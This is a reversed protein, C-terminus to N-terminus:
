DLVQSGCDRLDHIVLFGALESIQCRRTLQGLLSSIVTFLPCVSGREHLKFQRWTAFSLRPSATVRSLVTPSRLVRPEVRLIGKFLNDCFM